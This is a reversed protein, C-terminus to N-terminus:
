CSRQIIQHALLSEKNLLFKMDGEEYNDEIESIFYKRDNSLEEWMVSMKM